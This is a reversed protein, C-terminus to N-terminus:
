GDVYFFEFPMYKKVVSVLDYRIKKSTLM